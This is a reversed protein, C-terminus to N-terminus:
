LNFGQAWLTFTKLATIVAISVTLTTGSPLYLCRNGYADLSWGTIQSNRLLDVSPVTGTNGAGIPITFTGLPYAVASVTLSLTLTQASTDTCTVIIADIKSGNTGPTFVTGTVNSGAALTIPPSTNVTQLFAPTPTVAM